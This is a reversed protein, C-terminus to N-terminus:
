CATVLTASLRLVTTEDPHTGVSLLGGTIGIAVGVSLISRIRVVIKSSKQHGALHLCSYLVSLTAPLVAAQRIYAVCQGDSV